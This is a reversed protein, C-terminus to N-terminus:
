AGKKNNAKDWNLEPPMPASTVAQGRGSLSPNNMFYEHASFGNEESQMRTYKGKKDMIWSQKTDKLNALMIQDLVQAHVTANEIPVLAEIRRSLNRQMLDASSIFVKANRSPMPSGNAFCYIRAHELFRGVMSKVRINESLKKVGPKLTCIGRVVLEIKVGAQSAEYLKDIIQPDLLSNCKAWISAPKGAKANEIENDICAVLKERINIPAIGLKQLSKPKAYGTMYNFLLATDSCIDEDCTFYSLDTYVQANGPHYNGTGLHAYSKLTKNEKRTVLSVKAHTKLDMFGYVVQVGVRELDRALRINAEEDFRAKLEIMATVSKGNEAAEILAKVIPSDKSTRYLTQKISIVDPDRAAQRIFGVVVDFTEYPHHVLIDKNRIAAFHDGSFEKIREPFRPTFPKFLLEKNDSQILEDLNTLGVMAKCRYISIQDLRMQHKLFELLEPDISEHVSLNIVNGRRRQKVAREFTLVLDEAEDEVEIEGDRIVRFTAYNVLKYRTDFINHINQVIIKEIKVYIKEDGTDPLVVFRDLPQPIQILIKLIEDKDKLKLIISIGKNPLFPFPHAPDLAIPTIVPLINETFYEELWKQHKEELDIPETISIGSQALEERLATWTEQLENAFSFAHELITELQQPPTLGDLSKDTVNEKIQGIIGAVRVMFFEELNSSCISIFRTRELLPHSKNQAEELVRRNFALWSLERNLYRNDPLNITM